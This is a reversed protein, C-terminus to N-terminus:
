RNFTSYVGVGASIAGIAKTIIDFKDAPIDKELKKIELELKNVNNIFIDEMFTFGGRRILDYAEAEVQVKRMKLGLQEVVSVLGMNIFQTIIMNTYEGNEKEFKAEIFTPKKLEILKLLLQDKMEPTIM